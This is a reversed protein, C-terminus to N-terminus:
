FFFFPSRGLEVGPKNSCCCCVCVLLLFLARVNQQNVEWVDAPWSGPALLWPSCECTGAYTAPALTKVTRQQKGLYPVPVSDSYSPRLFASEYRVQCLLHSSLENCWLVLGVIAKKCNVGESEGEQLSKCRM